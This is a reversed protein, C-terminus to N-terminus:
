DYCEKALTRAERTLWPQLVENYRAELIVCINGESIYCIGVGRKEFEYTYRKSRNAIAEPLVIYSQNAFSTNKYAQDLAIRWKTLKAEFALVEGKQNIAVVDTKGRIYNFERVIEFTGWQNVDAILAQCFQEVLEIESEYM